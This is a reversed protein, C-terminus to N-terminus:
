QDKKKKWVLKVKLKKFEGNNWFEKELPKGWISTEANWMAIRLTERADWMKKGMIALMFVVFGWFGLWEFASILVVLLAFLLFLNVWNPLKM